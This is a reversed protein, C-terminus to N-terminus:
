VETNFIFKKVKLMISFGKIIEKKTNIIQNINLIKWFAFYKVKKNLIKSRQIIYYLYKNANDCEKKNASHKREYSINWEFNKQKRIQIKRFKSEKLKRFSYKRTAREIILRHKIHRYYMLKCTLYQRILTGIENICRKRRHHFFFFQNQIKNCFYFHKKKAYNKEQKLIKSLNSSGTKDNKLSYINKVLMKKKKKLIKIEIVNKMQILIKKKKLCSLFTNSNHKKNMFKNKQNRNILKHKNINSNKNKLQFSRFVKRYPIKRKKIQHIEERLNLNKKYIESSREKFTITLKKHNNIETLMIINPSKNLTIPNKKKYINKTFSKNYSGRKEKLYLKRTKQRKQENDKFENIKHKPVKKNKKLYVNKNIRKRLFRKKISTSCFFGLDDM